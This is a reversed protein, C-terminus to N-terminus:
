TPWVHRLTMDRKLVVYPRRSRVDAIVREIDEAAVEGRWSLQVKGPALYGGTPVTITIASEPPRVGVDFGLIKM